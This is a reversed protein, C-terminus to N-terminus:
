YDSFGRPDPMFFPSGKDVEILRYRGGLKQSKKHILLLPLGVAVMAVSAKVVSDDASYSDGQVLAVNIFDILFYGVGGVVLLGGVVNAFSSQRFYVRDIKHYGIIENHVMVATDYLNNVYSTHVEKSGKLRYVFEDGPYLRLLVKEGKLLVLQKQSHSLLPSLFLLLFCATPLIKM